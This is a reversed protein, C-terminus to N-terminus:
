SKREINNFVIKGDTMTLAVQFNEDMLTLDALYGEELKGLEHDMSLLRAPNLTVTALAEALTCGTFARFRRAIEGVAITSGILGNNDTYRAEGNRSIYKKGHFIYEGDPMGIASVGDTICIIRETGIQDVLFRVMEPHVHVGDCILQVPLKKEQFIALLPGPQRHHLAPMANFIHTVHNMGKGFASKTEEYSALSHGFSAIVGHQRFTQILADNGPIEPAITMMKLCGRKLIKELVEGAPPLISEPPIGGRNKPNLFPGELHLGLVRSGGITKGSARCIGDLHSNAKDLNYFTTPLYSTVGNSSLAKGIKIFRDDAADAVDANGAGNIHIDIFGASAFFGNGDIILNGSRGAGPKRIAAIRKDQILINWNGSRSDDAFKINQIETVDM